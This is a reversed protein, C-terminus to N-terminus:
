ARPVPIVLVARVGAMAGRPGLLTAGGTLAEGNLDLTEAALDASNILLMVDQHLRAAAATEEDTTTLSEGESTPHCRWLEVAIEAAVPGSCLQPVSAERGPAGPYVRAVYVALEEGDGAPPNATVMQRGPLTVAYAAYTTVTATLLAVCAEQLEDLDTV